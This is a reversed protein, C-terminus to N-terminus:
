YRNKKRRFDRSVKRVMFNLIHNINFFNITDDIQDDYSMIKIFKDV